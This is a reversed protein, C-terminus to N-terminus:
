LVSIFNFWKSSVEQIRADAVQHVAPLVQLLDQGPPLLADQVQPVPCVVEHHVEQLDQIPVGPVVVQHLGATPVAQDQVQLDATPVERQVARRDPIRVKEQQATRLGHILVGAIVIRLDQIPVEPIPIIQLDTIVVVTQILKVV